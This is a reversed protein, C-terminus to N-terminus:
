SPISSLPASPATQPKEGSNEQRTSTMLTAAFETSNLSSTQANWLVCMGDLTETLEMRRQMASYVTFFTIANKVESADRDDMAGRKLADHLMVQEWGGGDRPAIVMSTREMDAVLGAQVGEPGDWMNLSKSTQELMKLAVRPGAVPGLGGGVIGSFTRSIALWYRDFVQESVPVAHVYITTGDDREVPIVLNLRRDIKM